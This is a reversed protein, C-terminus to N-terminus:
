IRKDIESRSSIREDIRKRKLRKFGTILKKARKKPSALKALASVKPSISLVIPSFSKDVIFNLVSVAGSQANIQPKPPSETM